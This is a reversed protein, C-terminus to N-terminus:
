PLAASNFWCKEETKTFSSLLKGSNGMLHLAMLRLIELLALCTAVNNFFSLGWEAQPGSAILGYRNFSHEAMKAAGIVAMKSLDMDVARNGDSQFRAVTTGM